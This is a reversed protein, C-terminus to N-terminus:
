NSIFEIAPANPIAIQGPTISVSIIAGDAPATIVTNNYASEAIQVAGLASQMQAQATAIDESRASTIVSNLNANAQALVAEANAVAQNRNEVALNYANLNNTYNAGSKNPIHVTWSDSLLHDGSGNPFSIFLGKTGLPKPLTDFDTVGNEIGGYYINNFSYNQFSIFYDGAETGNYTGTIVPNDTISDFDPLAVLNDSYLKRLANTVLTDQQSKTQDLNIKATNVAAKAVDITSGTAGSIIKQYNARASSYSARAQELAGLVNGADLSALVQDKKVVDGAKVSVAKIRGGALFGLTINHTFTSSEITTKSDLTINPASVKENIKQYGFFGIVLAIILSIITVRKPHHHLTKIHKHIM